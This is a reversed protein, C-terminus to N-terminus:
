IPRHFHLRDLGVDDGAAVGRQAPRSHTGLRFQICIDLAIQNDFGHLIAAAAAVAVRADARTVAQTAVAFGILAVGEGAVDLAAVVGAIQGADIDAGVGAAAHAVGALGYKGGAEGAAAGRIDVHLVVGLDSAREDGGGIFVAVIQVLEVEAGVCEAKGIQAVSIDAALGASPEADVKIHLRDVGYKVPSGVLNRIIILM